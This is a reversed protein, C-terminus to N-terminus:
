MFLGFPLLIRLAEVSTLLMRTSVKLVCRLTDTAGIATETQLWAHFLKVCVCVMELSRLFRRLRFWFELSREPLQQFFLGDFSACKMPSLCPM